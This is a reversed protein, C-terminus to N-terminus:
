RSRRLSSRRADRVGRGGDRARVPRVVRPYRVPGARKTEDDREHRRGARDVRLGEEGRVRFAEGRAQGDPRAANAAARAERAPAAPADPGSAFGGSVRVRRLRRPAVVDARRRRLPAHPLAHRPSAEASDRYRRPGRGARFCKSTTHEERRRRGSGNAGRGSRKRRKELERVADAVDPHLATSFFEPLPWKLKEPLAPIRNGDGRHFMQLNLPEESDVVDSFSSVMRMHRESLLHSLRAWGGVM